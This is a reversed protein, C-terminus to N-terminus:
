PVGGSAVSWQGSVVSPECRAWWRGCPTWPSGCTMGTAPINSARTWPSARAAATTRGGPISPCSSTNTTAGAAFAAGRRALADGRAAERRAPHRHVRSRVGARHAAALDMIKMSPIRPVFVEGGHMEQICGLVFRVGQELTLWFRTMRADTVTVRGSQRQQRFVPIISGRSGLVNGYRTCSLRTDHKGAYSNGQIVAERRLAEHRRLPEGPQRGQGHESALVKRVGCDIAADLINEAGGVNTQVAEGPNYECAPVQKMAAAHIVIDVDTM